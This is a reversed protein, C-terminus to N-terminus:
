RKGLYQKDSKLDALMAAKDVADAYLRASWRTKFILATGNDLVHWETRSASATEYAVKQILLPANYDPHQPCTGSHTIVREGHGDGPDETMCACGTTTITTTM